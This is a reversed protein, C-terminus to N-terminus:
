SEALIDSVDYHKKMTGRISVQNQMQIGVTFFLVLNILHQIGQRLNFPSIAQNNQRIVRKYRNAVRVAEPRQCKTLYISRISNCTLGTSKIDYSCLVNTIHFGTLDQNDISFRDLSCLWGRIKQLFFM